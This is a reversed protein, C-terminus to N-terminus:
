RTVEIPPGALVEGLNYDAPDDSVQGSPDHAWRIRLVHAVPLAVLRLGPDVPRIVFVHTGHSYAVGVVTCVISNAGDLKRHYHHEVQVTSGHRTAQTIADLIQLREDTPLRGILKDHTGTATKPM